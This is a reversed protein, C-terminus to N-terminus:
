RASLFDRFNALSLRATVVEGAQGLPRASEGNLTLALAGADEATLVIERQVHITQDEGTQLLREIARRGDVMASVWCPRSVSLRVTLRDEAGAAAAPSASPRPSTGPSAAAVDGTAAPREATSRDPTSSAPGPVIPAPPTAAPTWQVSFFGAAYSALTRWAGVYLAWGAVMIGVVLAVGVSSGRRRQREIPAATRVAELTPHGAVVSDHPFQAIFEQITREPDLGVEVAYSRVFARGFIGGPLRSIDNRELADLVGVSIKTANAIQRLSVGRRERAERLRGGFSGPNWDPTMVLRAQV